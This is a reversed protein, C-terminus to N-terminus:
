ISTTRSDVEFGTQEMIFQTIHASHGTPIIGAVWFNGIVANYGVTTIGQIQFSSPLYSNQPVTDVKLGDTGVSSVAIVPLVSLSIGKACVKAITDASLTTYQGRYGGSATIFVEFNQLAGDQNRHLFVPANDNNGSCIREPM